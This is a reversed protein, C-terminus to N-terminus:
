HVGCRFRFGGALKEAWEFRGTHVREAPPLKPDKRDRMYRGTRGRRHRQTQEERM